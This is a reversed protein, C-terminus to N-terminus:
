SGRGLREKSEKWFAEHNEKSFGKPTKKLFDEMFHENQASEMSQKLFKDVIETLTSWFNIWSNSKNDEMPKRHFGYIKRFHTLKKKNEFFFM